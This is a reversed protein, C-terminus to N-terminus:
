GEVSSDEFAFCSSDKLHITSPDVGPVACKDIKVEVGKTSCTVLAKGAEFQCTKEDPGLTWCPPCSCVSGSCTHSCGGNNGDYCTASICRTENCISHAAM